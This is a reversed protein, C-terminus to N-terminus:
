LEAGSGLYVSQLRGHYNLSVPQNWGIMLTRSLRQIRADAGANEPLDTMSFCDFLWARETKYVVIAIGRIHNRNAALFMECTRLVLKEEADANADYAPKPLEVSAVQAIRRAM